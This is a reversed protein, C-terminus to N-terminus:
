EVVITLNFTAEEGSIFEPRRHIASITQVGTNVTTVNWERVGRIGIFTPSPNGDEDYWIVGGDSIRLGPSATMYWQYGTRRNENLRITFSEHLKVCITSNNQMEDVTMNGGFGSSELCEISTVNEEPYQQDLGLCGVALTVMMVTLLVSLERMGKKLKM